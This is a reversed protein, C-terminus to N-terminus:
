YLPPPVIVLFHPVNTLLTTCKSNLLPPCQFIYKKPYLPPPVIVLFYPRNCIHSFYACSCACNNKPNQSLSLRKVSLVGIEHPYGFIPRSLTQCISSVTPTRTLTLNIYINSVSM